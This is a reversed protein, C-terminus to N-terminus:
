ANTKYLFFYLGSFLDVFGRVYTALVAGVLGYQPALLLISLILSAPGFFTGFWLARKHDTAYFHHWILSMPIFLITGVFIQSIFVASM